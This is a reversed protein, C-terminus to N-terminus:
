AANSCPKAPGTSCRSQGDQQVHGTPRAADHEGRLHYHGGRHAQSQRPNSYVVDAKQLARPATASGRQSPSASAAEHAEDPCSSLPVTLCACSSPTVCLPCHTEINDPCISLYLTKDLSVCTIVCMCFLFWYVTFVANDVQVSYIQLIHIADTLYYFSM